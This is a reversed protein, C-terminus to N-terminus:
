QYQKKIGGWTVGQLQGGGTCAAYGGGGVCIRGLRYDEGPQAQDVEFACDIVHIGFPYSSAVQKLCGTTASFIMRGIPALSPGYVCNFATTITGAVAGFPPAPLVATVQGPQCDWLGYIFIWSPDPEFATQVGGLQSHNFALLYVAITGASVDVTPAVGLCDVPQYASCPGQAVTTAHLPLLFSANQGAGTPAAAATSVLVALSLANLATEARM